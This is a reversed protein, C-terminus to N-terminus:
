VYISVYSENKNKCIHICYTSVPKAPQARVLCERRSMVNEHRRRGAAKQIREVAVALLRNVERQRLRLLLTIWQLDRTSECLYCCCNRRKLPLPLVGINRTDTIQTETITHNMAFETNEWMLLLPINDEKIALFPRQDKRKKLRLLTTIWQLTGHWSVDIAAACWGRWHCCCPASKSKTTKDHYHHSANCLKMYVLCDRWLM